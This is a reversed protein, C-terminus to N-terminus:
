GRERIRPDLMANLLDAFLTLLIYVMSIFLVIAQIVPM